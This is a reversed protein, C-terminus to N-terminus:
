EQRAAARRRAFWGAVGMGGMTLVAVPLAPPLPVAPPPTVAPYGVLERVVTYNWFGIQSNTERLWQDLNEEVYTPWGDLIEIGFDNFGDFGTVHWSWEPAGPALLDRNIGGGSGRAIRAFAISRGAAEPGRAILDRAHAIDEEDTLPLVFSDGHTVLGPPEAVQFYVVGASASQTACLLSVFGFLGAVIVSATSRLRM